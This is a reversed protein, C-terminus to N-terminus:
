DLGCVRVATLAYVQALAVLRDVLVNEGDPGPLGSSTGYNVTPIQYRTLVSADSGWRVAGQEPADGFVETHAADLADVVAHNRDIESGPM